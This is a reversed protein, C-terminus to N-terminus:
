QRSLRKPSCHVKSHEACVERTFVGECILCQRLLVGHTSVALFVKGIRDRVIGHRNGKSDKNM